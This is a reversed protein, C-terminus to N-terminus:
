FEGTGRGLGRNTAGGILILAHCVGLPAGLKDLPAGARVVSTM